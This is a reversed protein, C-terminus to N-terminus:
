EGRDIGRIRLAYADAAGSRELRSTVVSELRPVNGLFACGVMQLGGGRDVRVPFWLRCVTLM